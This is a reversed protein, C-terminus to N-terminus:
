IDSDATSSSSSSASSAVITSGSNASVTVSQHTVSHTNGSTSVESRAEAIARGDASVIRQVLIKSYRM